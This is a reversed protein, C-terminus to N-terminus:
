FKAFQCLVGGMLALSVIWYGSHIAIYKFGRREFMANIAVIPTVFIIGSLTGHFAGHKFTRYLNGYKAMFDAFYKGPETAPDQAGAIDAFISYIHAQHIVMAMLGGSILFGMVYTLTFIVGMRGTKLKEETVEAAKMWPNAFTKPNYWIFGVILPILATCLM